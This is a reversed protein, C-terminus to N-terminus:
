QATDVSQCNKVIQEVNQDNMCKFHGRPCKKTGLKSCPNCPLKVRHSQTGPAPLYPSMGFSSHTNGWIIQIPIQFASAVHMLGTDGTILGNSKKILYASEHLTLKDVLNFVVKSNLESIIAEAKALDSKGGGLLVLPGNIKEIIELLINIPIQKTYYTGGISIATYKRTPLNHQLLDYQFDKPFYFEIGRKDNEIGLSVLSDFYRDVLHKEPLLNIKFNVFLWKKINLKNYSIWRTNLARKLKWTRLNKHLDIVLDYKEQVLQKITNNEDKEDLTKVENIDNSYEVLSTFKSKTLYHIEANPYKNRVCRTIPSTLVIDGISSFRIVLIKL